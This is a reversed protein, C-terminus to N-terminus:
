IELFYKTYPPNDVKIPVINPIIPAYKTITGIIYLEYALNKVNLLGSITYVGLIRIAANM